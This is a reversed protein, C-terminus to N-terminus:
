QAAHKPAVTEKQLLAEVVILRAAKRQPAAHLVVEVAEDAKRKKGGALTCIRERGGNQRVAELLPSSGNRNKTHPRLNSCMTGGSSGPTESHAKCVVIDLM